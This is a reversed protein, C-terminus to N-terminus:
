AAREAAERPRRVELTCCKVGGGALLLESLDVGVPVFGRAALQAHFLTADAATVVHLGDSVANLAFVAADEESAEIAHPYRGRLVELSDQDFASPLYAIEEQGPTADLVALATDLHYYDDRVLTLPVVERDVLSALEAHSDETSRFGTGSLIADGVVLFDGEGENVASAHAVDLGAGAFWEAYAPGEPQRQPHAFSATYALGDVVLGGNAAFVMDPLGPLPEILSVDFGLSRYTAVLQEWQRIARATDTPTSPDMWANIAYSVTFYTPRCMLVSLPTAAREPLPATM